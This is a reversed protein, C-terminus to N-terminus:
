SRQLQVMPDVDHRSHADQQTTGPMDQPRSRHLHHRVADRQDAGPIQPPRIIWQHEGRFGDFLGVIQQHLRGIAVTPMGNFGRLLLQRLDDGAGRHAAANSQYRRKRYPARLQQHIVQVPQQLPARDGVQRDVEVAGHRGIDRAQVLTKATLM